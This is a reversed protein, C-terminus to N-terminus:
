FKAKFSYAYAFVLWYLADYVSIKENTKGLGRWFSFKWHLSWKASLNAYAAAM